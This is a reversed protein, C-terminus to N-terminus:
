EGQKKMNLTGVVDDIKGAGAESLADPLEDILRMTVTPDFFNATGIQVANAGAVLFELVDDITTIGGVGVVPISV